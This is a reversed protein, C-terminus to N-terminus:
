QNFQKFHHDLHKYILVNWQNGTMKGFFPHIKGEFDAETFSSFQQLRKLFLSKEANFDVSTDAVFSPATPSNKSIPTAEKLAKKLILKGIIRGAFMRKVKEDTFLFAISKNLHQFMQAANMKGWSQLTKEQVNEARKVFDKLNSADLVSEMIILNTVFITFLNQM